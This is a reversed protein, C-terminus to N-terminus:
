EDFHLILKKSYHSKIKFSSEDLLGVEFINELIKLSSNDFKMIRGHPEQM